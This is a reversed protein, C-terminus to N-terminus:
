RLNMERLVIGTLVKPYFFTSKPPMRKGARAVEMMQDISPPNVLFVACAKRRRLLDMVAEPNHNYLIDHDDFEVEPNGVWTQRIVLEHLVTVDLSRITKHFSRELVERLKVGKRLTMVFARGGNLVAGFTPKGGALESVREALRLAEGETKIDLDFPTIRFFEELDGLFEEVEVGDDMERSLARHIPLITMGEDDANSLYMLTDDFPQLGDRRNLQARMEDRYNLSTEYRHHGDAIFLEKDALADTITKCAKEGAIIWVRHQVGAEDSWEAWPKKKSEAEIV